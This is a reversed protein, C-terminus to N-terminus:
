LAIEALTAARLIQHGTASFENGADRCLLRLDKSQMSRKAILKAWLSLNNFCSHEIVSESRGAV